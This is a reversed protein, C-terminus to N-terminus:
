KRLQTTKIQFRPVLLDARSQIMRLELERVDPRFEPGPNSAYLDRTTLRLLGQLSGIVKEIAGKLDGDLKELWVLLLSSFVDGTGVFMGPIIPIDFRYQVPPKGAETIKSGYCFKTTETELGSTVVVTEVGKEHMKDIANLCEMENTISEGSLEFLFIEQTCCLICFILFAFIFSLSVLSLEFVNPTIVNALPILTDRYIPMLEKPAYYRGNDGLVPDCIFIVDPNKTRVDKVIDAIKMLFSPNGCYGVNEFLIGAHNSFQVSNIADVEFGHLQLPFVSCKNGVYGHVVHSQISLVHSNERPNKTFAEYLANIWQDNMKEVTIERM